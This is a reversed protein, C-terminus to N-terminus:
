RLNTALSKKGFIIQELAPLFETSNQLKQRTSLGKVQDNWNNAVKAVSVVESRIFVESSDRRALGKVLQEVPSYYVESSCRKVASDLRSSLLFTNAKLFLLCLCTNINRIRKKMNNAKDRKERDRDGRQKWRLGKEVGEGGDRIERRILEKDELTFVELKMVNQKVLACIKANRNWVMVNKKIICLKSTQAGVQWVRLKQDITQGGLIGVEQKM